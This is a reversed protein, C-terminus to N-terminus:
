QRRPAFSVGGKREVYTEIPESSELAYKSYAFEGPDVGGSKSCSVLKWNLSVLPFPGRRAVALHMGEDLSLPVAQLRRVEDGALWLVDEGELIEGSRGFLGSGELTRFARWVDTKQEQSLTGNRRLRTLLVLLAVKAFSSTALRGRCDEVFAHVDASRPTPLLLSALVTEDVYFVPDPGFDIGSVKM